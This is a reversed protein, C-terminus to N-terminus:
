RKGIEPKMMVTPFMDFILSGLLSFNVFKELYALNVTTFLAILLVVYIEWMCSYGPKCFMYRGAIYKLINLLAAKPLTSTNLFVSSVPPIAHWSLNGRCWLQSNMLNSIMLFINDRHELLTLLRPCICNSGWNCYINYYILNINHYIM